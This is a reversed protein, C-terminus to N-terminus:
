KSEYIIGNKDFLIQKENKLYDRLEFQNNIHDPMIMGALGAQCEIHFDSGATKIKGNQEALKLSDEYRTDFRLHPNYVEVGHVYRMDAPAYGQETRYPHSQVMVIDKKNCFDFLQKQTCNYLPYSNIFDQESIGYLLFEPHNPQNILMIEAGFFVKVGVADGKAKARFFTDVYIKAQETLNSSLKDCDVPAYHNTLVFADTGKALFMEPLLEPLHHACSSVPLCHTHMDIKM